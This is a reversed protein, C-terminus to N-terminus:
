RPVFFEESRVRIVKRVAVQQIERSVSEDWFDVLCPPHEGYLIEYSLSGPPAGVQEFTKAEIFICPVDHIDVRLLGAARHYGDRLFCRDRYRVVQLYSAGMSVLITIAQMKVAADPSPGVNADSLQGGAIRLNPNFSSITFGKGDPDSFAGALPLPRSEPICLERLQEQSGAAGGVRDALADIHVLKQFSLIKRLDVMAPQWPLGAFTAAIEPRNAIAKLYAPRKRLVPDEPRYPRRSQVTKRCMAITGHLPPLDDSPLPSRGLLTHVAEQDSLWGIISRAPRYLLPEGAIPEFSDASPVPPGNITPCDIWPRRSGQM